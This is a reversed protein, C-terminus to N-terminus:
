PMQMEQKQSRLSWTRHLTGILILSGATIAVDAGNFTPWQLKTGFHLDLFDVVEGRAIRDTFNSLAGGLILGLSISVSLSWGVRRLAFAFIVLLALICLGLLVPLRLGEPVAGFLGFAGNKNFRLNLNLLGPILSVPHNAPLAETVVWKCIQDLLVTTLAISLVAVRHITPPSGISKYTNEPQTRM